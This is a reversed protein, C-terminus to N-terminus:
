HGIRLLRTPKVKNQLANLLRIDGIATLQCLLWLKIVFSAYGTVLTVVLVFSDLELDFTITNSEIGM